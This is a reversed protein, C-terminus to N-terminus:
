AHAPGAGARARRRDIAGQYAALYRQASRGWSFEDAMGARRLRELAGRDHFVALARQLAAALAQSHFPGFTFGNGQGSAPDFDHVTDALGGTRRVVPPTGYRLSYMQNLGCPEYRSPMLFFDAGAEIRHALGEDFDVRAAVHRPARRVLETLRAEINPDGSGLIVIQAGAGALAPITDAVLDIGKQAALRGISAFLPTRADYPMRLEDLLARKCTDKGQLHDRDYRAALQSDTAPNWAETDIGNLIGVLDRNRARLVGELGYGFEESTQIERAYTPSVTGLADALVLGAKMLNMAGWFEFAGMPDMYRSPLGTLAFSPARFVGQYGLNHISFFTASGAAGEGSLAYAAVLATHHDNLHLVDVAAGREGLAALAARAFFVWRELQDSFERGSRADTYIGDRDFFRGGVCLVEVSSNPLTGRELTWPERRGGVVVWRPTAAAVRVLGWREREISRYAPIVLTVRAGQRVLERPLAGSVDALGGVKAYPAAEAAIFGVHLTLAAEARIDRARM